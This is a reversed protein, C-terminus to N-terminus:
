KEEYLIVVSLYCVRRRIQAALGPLHWRAEKAEKAERVCVFACLACWTRRRKPISGQTGWGLYIGRM